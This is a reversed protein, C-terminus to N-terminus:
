RWYQPLHEGLTHEHNLTNTNYEPVEDLVPATPMHQNTLSQLSAGVDNGEPPASAEAMLRQRELDQKDDQLRHSTDGDFTPPDQNSSSGAGAGNVITDGSRTSVASHAIRSKSPGAERDFERRFDYPGADEPLFPASPAAAEAATSPGGEDPPQSPLLLAEQRRLWEKEGVPEEPPPPAIPHTSSLNHTREDDRDHGFDDYENHGDWEGYYDDNEDYYEQAGPHGVQGPYFETANEEQMDNDERARRSGTRCSDKTGVIVAFTFDVVSKTRRLQLTDLINNAWDSNSQSINDAGDTFSPGMSTLRPLFRPEGLKGCLDVVVEVYYKFSIMGGPVNSMTPFANDPLKISTKVDATLTKPNVIMTATSQSLDMRFVSSPSGNSFHLGGLGSKSRPFIDEYEARKTKGKSVVPIAPHLDIRGQRYLTAIVLGRVNPKNHIVTVRIPITDGPLAGQRELETTATITQSSTSTTSSRAENDKRSSAYASDTHNVAQFSNTSTSNRSVATDESPAPSQPPQIESAPRNSHTSSDTNTRSIQRRSPTDRTKELSAHRVKVKVRGCKLIPELSIVRPKPISIHSIDISDRFKIPRYCSTTPAISNPRTLTATIFYSV